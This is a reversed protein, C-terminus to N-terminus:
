KSLLEKLKAQKAYMESREKTLSDLSSQQKSLIFQRKQLRYSEDLSRFSNKPRSIPGRASLDSGQRPLIADSPSFRLMPQPNNTTSEMQPTRCRVPYVSRIYASRDGILPKYHSGSYNLTLNSSSSSSPTRGTKAKAAHKLSESLKHFDSALYGNYYNEGTPVLVARHMQPTKPDETSDKTSFSVRKQLPSVYYKVGSPKTVELRPSEGRVSHDSGNKENNILSESNSRYFWYPPRSMDNEPDLDTKITELCVDINKPHKFDTQTTSIWPSLNVSLETAAPSKFPIEISQGRKLPRFSFSASRTRTSVRSQHPRVQASGSPTLIRMPSYFQSLYPLIEDVATAEASQGTHSFSSLNLQEGTDIGGAQFYSRLADTNM